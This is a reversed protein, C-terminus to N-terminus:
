AARPFLLMIAQWISQSQQPEFRAVTALSDPLESRFKVATVHQPLPLAIQPLTSAWYFRLRSKAFELDFKDQNISLWSAGLVSSVNEVIKERHNSVLHPDDLILRVLDAVSYGSGSTELQVSAILPDTGQVSSLQDLSFEHIRKRTGCSKVEIRESDFVFDNRETDQSHWATVMLSPNSSQQILFLEAWMGRITERSPTAESALLQSLYTVQFNITEEDPEDGLMVALLDAFVVFVESLTPELCSV